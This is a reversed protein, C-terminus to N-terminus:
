SMEPTALETETARLGVRSAIAAKMLERDAEIESDGETPSDSAPILLATERASEEDMFWSMAPTALETEVASVGVSVPAAASRSLSEAESEREGDRFWSRPLTVLESEMASIGVRARAAFKRAVIEAESLRVGEM